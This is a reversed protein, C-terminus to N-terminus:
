GSGRARRALDLAWARSRACSFARAVSASSSWVPMRVRRRWVTNVVGAKEVAQCMAEGEEANMSLPKECLIM